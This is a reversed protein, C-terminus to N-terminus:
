KKRELRLGSARAMPRSLSRPGAHRFQQQGHLRLGRRRELACNEDARRFIGTTIFEQEQAQNANASGNTARGMWDYIGFTGGLQWGFGWESLKPLPVGLNLGTVAGNNNTLGDSVGRWSEIGLSAYLGLKPCPDAYAYVFTKQRANERDQSRLERIFIRLAASDNELYSANRVTLGEHGIVEDSQDEDDFTALSKGFVASSIVMQVTLTLITLLLWSSFSTRM